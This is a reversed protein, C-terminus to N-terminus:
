NLGSAANSFAAPASCLLRHEAQKLLSKHLPQPMDRSSLRCHSSIQRPHIKSIHMLMVLEAIQSIVEAEKTNRLCNLQCSKQPLINLLGPFSL